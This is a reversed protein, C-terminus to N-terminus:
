GAAASFVALPLSFNRDVVSGDNGELGIMVTGNAVATTLTQSPLTIVWTGQIPTGNADFTAGPQVAVSADITASALAHRGGFSASQLVGMAYNAQRTLKVNSLTFNGTKGHIDTAVDLSSATIRTSVRSGKGANVVSRQVEASGIFSVAGRPTAAKLTTTSLTVSIVGGTTDVVHMTVAGNLVPQGAAGRCDIFAIRYSEGADLQGNQEERASAGAITMTATGDGACHITRDRQVQNRATRQAGLTARALQMATLLTADLASSAEVGVFNANVSYQVAATRSLPAPLNSTTGDAVALVASLASIALTPIAIFQISM